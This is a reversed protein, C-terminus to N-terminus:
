PSATVTTSCGIPAGTMYCVNHTLATQVGELAGLLTEMKVSLNGYIRNENGAEINADNGVKYDMSMTIEKTENNGIKSDKTFAIKERLCAGVNLDYYESIEESKDNVVRATWDGNSDFVVETGKSHHLYVKNDDADDRLILYHGGATRFAIGQEDIKDKVTLLHGNPTQIKWSENGPTRDWLMVIKQEDSSGFTIVKRNLREERTDGVESPANMIYGAVFMLEPSGGPCILVAKAGIDPPTYETGFVDSKTSLTMLWESEWQQSELMSVKVACPIGKVNDDRDGLYDIDSVFGIRVFEKGMMLSLMDFQARNFEIM